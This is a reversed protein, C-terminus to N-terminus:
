GKRKTLIIKKEIVKMSYGNKKKKKEIASRNSLYYKDKPLRTGTLKEYQADTLEFDQGKAFIKDIECLVPNGMVM